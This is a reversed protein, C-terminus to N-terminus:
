FAVIRTGNLWQIPFCVEEDHKEEPAQLVEWLRLFCEHFCSFLVYIFLIKLFSDHIESWKM